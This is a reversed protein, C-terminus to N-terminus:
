EPQSSLIFLFMNSDNIFFYFNHTEDYLSISEPEYLFIYQSYTWFAVRTLLIGKRVAIYSTGKTGRLSKHQKNDTGKLALNKFNGM